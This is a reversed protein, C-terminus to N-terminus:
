RREINGHKAQAKEVKKLHEDYPIAQRLEEVLRKFEDPGVEYMRGAAYGINNANTIWVKKKPQKSM